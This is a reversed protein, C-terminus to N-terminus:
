SPMKSYIALSSFSKRNQSSRCYAIGSLLLDKNLVSEGSLLFRSEHLAFNKETGPGSSNEIPTM